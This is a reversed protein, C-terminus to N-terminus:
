RQPHSSPHLFLLTVPSFVTLLPTHNQMQTQSVNSAIWSVLEEHSWTSPIRPNYKAPKSPPVPVRLLEAYRLTNKSAGADTANPKVCALVATKCYRNGNVDFVHKLVKTLVSSRFPIHAKPARKGGAGTAESINWVARGRNSNQTLKYARKLSDLRIM